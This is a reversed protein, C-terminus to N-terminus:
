GVTWVCLCLLCTLVATRKLWRTNERWFMSSVSDRGAHVETGRKVLALASNAAGRYGSGPHRRDLRLFRLVCASPIGLHGVSFLSPAM